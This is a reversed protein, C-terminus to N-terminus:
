TLAKYSPWCDVARSHDSPSPTNDRRCHTLAQARGDKGGPMATHDKRGHRGAGGFAGAARGGPPGPARLTEARSENTM